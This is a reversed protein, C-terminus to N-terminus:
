VGAPGGLRRGPGAVFVSRNLFVLGAGTTTNERITVFGLKMQIGAQRATPRPTAPADDDRRCPLVAAHRDKTSQVGYHAFDAGQDRSLFSTAFKQIEQCPQQMVNIGVAIVHIEKEIITGEMMSFGHFLERRVM